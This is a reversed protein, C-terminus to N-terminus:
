IDEKKFVTGSIVGVTKYTCLVHKKGKAKQLFLAAHYHLLKIYFHVFTQNRFSQAHIILVYFWIGM